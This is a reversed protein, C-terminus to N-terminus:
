KKNKKSKKLARNDNTTSAWTQMLQGIVPSQTNLLLPRLYVPALVSVSPSYLAATQSLILSSM